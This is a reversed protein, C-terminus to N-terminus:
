SLQFRQFHARDEVLFSDIYQSQSASKLLFSINLLQRIVQRWPISMSFLLGNAKEPFLNVNTSGGNLMHPSAWSVSPISIRNCAPGERPDWGGTSCWNPKKHDDDKTSFQLVGLSFQVYDGDHEGTVILPDELKSKVPLPSEAGARETDQHGIKDGAADWIDVEALLDITDAGCTHFQNVHVHCKDKEDDKGGTPSYPAKSGADDPKGQATLPCQGPDITIPNAPQNMMIAQQNVMERIVGAAIIQNGFKTLHFVRGIRSM